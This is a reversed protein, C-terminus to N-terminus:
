KVDFGCKQLFSTNEIMGGPKMHRSAEFRGKPWGSDERQFVM